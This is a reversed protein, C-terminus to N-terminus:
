PCRGTFLVFPLILGTLAYAFFLSQYHIFFCVLVDNRVRLPSAVSACRLEANALGTKQTALENKNYQIAEDNTASM